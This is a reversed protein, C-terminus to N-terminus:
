RLNHRQLPSNRKSPSNRGLADQSVHHGVPSSRTDDDNHRLPSGASQMDMKINSLSHNLVETQMNTVDSKISYQNPNYTNIECKVENKSQLLHLESKLSQQQIGCLGQMGGTQLAPPAQQTSPTEYGGYGSLGYQQHNGFYDPASVASSIYNGQSYEETPPFKPDVVVSHHSYASSPNMLFSSM